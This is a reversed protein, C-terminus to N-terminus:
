EEAGGDSPISPEDAIKSIIINGSTVTILARSDGNIEHTYNNGVAEDYLTIDGHRASLNMNFDPMEPTLALSVNTESGSVNVSGFTFTDATIDGDTLIADFMGVSVDKMYLSGEDIEVSVQSTTRFEAILANGTGIDLSVDLKTDFNSVYVNGKDVKVNVVNVESDTPLYLNIRKASETTKGGNHFYDRFGHFSFGSEWFKLISMVDLTTDVTVSRNATTMRYAGEDFNYLEMHPIPYGGYIYVDAESVVLEFKNYVEDTDFDFESKMDENEDAVSSFLEVGDAAATTEASRCVLWGVLIIILSILIFIISTPKM